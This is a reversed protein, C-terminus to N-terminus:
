YAYFEGSIIGLDTCKFGEAPWYNYKITVDDFIGSVIDFNTHNFIDAETNYRIIIDKFVGSIVDLNLSEFGETYSYRNVISNLFGSIIDFSLGEFSDGYDIHVNISRFMGDLVEINTGNFGDIFEVPYLCSTYIALQPPIYNKHWYGCPFHQDSLPIGTFEINFNPDTVDTIEDGESYRVKAAQYPITFPHSPAWETYKSATFKGDSHSLAKWKSM